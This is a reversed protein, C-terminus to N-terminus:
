YPCADFFARVSDENGVAVFCLHRNTWAFTHETADRFLFGQGIIQEGSSDAPGELEIARIVSNGMGEFGRVLTDLEDMAGEASGRHQVALSVVASDMQDNRAEDVYAASFAEVAGASRFRGITTDLLRFGAIPAEIVHALSTPEPWIYIRERAHSDGGLREARADVEWTLRGHKGAVNVPVGEPIPVEFAHSSGAHLPGKHLAGSGFSLADVTKGGCEEKLNVFVELSRCLAENNVTVAGRVTGGAM